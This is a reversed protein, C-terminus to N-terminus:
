DFDEFKMLIFLFQKRFLPATGMTNSFGFFHKNIVQKESCYYYYTFYALAMRLSNESFHRNKIIEISM